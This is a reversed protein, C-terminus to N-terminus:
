FFLRSPLLPRNKDSCGVLTVQISLNDKIVDLMGGPQIGFKGRSLPVQGKILLIDGRKGDYKRREARLYKLSVPFSIQATNGKLLLSGFAEANMTNRNWYQNRMGRLQFSIKPFQKSNLWDTKQADGNVKNYGFRLTRADLLVTGSTSTPNETPFIIQGVVKNFTGRVRGFGMLEGKELGVEIKNLKGMPELNFSNAGLCFNVVFCLNVLVWNLILININM